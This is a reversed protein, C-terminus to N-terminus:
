SQEAEESLNPFLEPNFPYRSMFDDLIKKFYAKNEELMERPEYLSYNGHSLINILRAHLVGDPDNNDQKICASFNKFGHFSASKELLSRLMNFHYTYLKGSQQAQCLETLMAVHQFFPTDGTDRLSYIDTTKDKSLFYKKANSLENCLVNFFLTHHSSMITKLQSNQNKLLQALSSAVAIANNEDLSSIPDDIYIYKVWNYSEAGDMALQVIALFFCWVFLNEEGRSVKINDITVGQVERSFSITGQGYDISFYFDAYRHLFPRIRNEMELEEIGSFFRSSANIKLVRDSDSDLDNDWTFLDETFANFYLTDKQESQKGAEKFAMSLRTKGTGNYAYLLLFKKNELEQRLHTALKDLNAFTTSM